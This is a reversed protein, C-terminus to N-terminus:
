AASRTSACGFLNRLRKAVGGRTKKKNKEATRDELEQCAAQYKLELRENRLKTERLANDIVEYKRKLRIFHAKGESLDVSMQKMKKSDQENDNQVWHGMVNEIPVDDCEDDSLAYNIVPGLRKRISAVDVEGGIEQNIKDVVREADRGPESHNELCGLLRNKEVLKKELVKIREEMEAVKRGNKQFIKWKIKNYISLVANEKVTKDNKKRLKALEEQLKLKDTILQKNCELSEALAKKIELSGNQEFKNAKIKDMKKSHAPTEMDCNTVKREGNVLEEKADIRLFDTKPIKDENLSTKLSENRSVKDENLSKKLSENRSVKDENLSTKLSENRSVKDENLSTKLSENRSVKDENLSTKLSENRSVKDENLSKKLSENRSVKDENLSTKLSENRSVKDENLSKKLSENRSVKDEKLSKKLSENRSVKDENLSTKLSENCPVKDENLSTKLSENRSVKDENLSTKLSENRSVKDGKLSVKQPENGLVKDEALTVKLPEIRPVKVTTDESHKMRLESSIMPTPFLKVEPKPSQCHDSDISSNDSDSVGFDTKNDCVELNPTLTEFTTDFDEVVITPIAWKQSFSSDKSASFNVEKPIEEFTQTSTENYTRLDFDEVVITPIVMEQSTPLNDAVTLNVAENEPVKPSPISTQHCSPLDFDEITIVPIVLAKLKDCGSSGTEENMTNRMDEASEKLESPDVEKGYDKVSKSQSDFDEIIIIPIDMKRGKPPEDVVSLNVENNFVELSPISTEDYSPLDFDEITIIPIVMEQSEQVKDTVQIRSSSRVEISNSVELPPISTENYSQLDFDEVTIIPIAMEQSSQLSDVEVSRSSRDEYVYRSLEAVVTEKRHEEILSKTSTKQTANLKDVNVKPNDKIINKNNSIVEGNEVKKMAPFSGQCYIGVVVLSSKVVLESQARKPTMKRKESKKDGSNSSKLQNPSKNGVNKSSVENHNVKRTEKKDNKTVESVNRKSTQTTANKEMQRESSKKDSRFGSAFSATPKKLGEGSKKKTFSKTGGALNKSANSTGKTFSEPSQVKVKESSASKASKKTVNKSGSTVPKTAPRPKVVPPKKAMSSFSPKSKNLEENVMGVKTREPLTPFEGFNVQNLSNSATEKLVNGKTAPVNEDLASSQKLNKNQEFFQIRSQINGGAKIPKNKVKCSTSKKERKEKTDKNSDPCLPLTKSFTHKSHKRRNKLPQDGVSVSPSDQMSNSSSTSINQQTSQKEKQAAATSLENDSRMKQLIKKLEKEILLCESSAQKRQDAKFTEQSFAKELSEIHQETKINPNSAVRRQKTITRPKEVQARLEKKALVESPIVIGIKEM